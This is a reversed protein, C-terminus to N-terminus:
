NKNIFKTFSSLIALPLVASSMDRLLNFVSFGIHLSDHLTAGAFLVLVCFITAKAAKEAYGDIITYIITIIGDFISDILGM